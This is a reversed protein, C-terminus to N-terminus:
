RPMVKEPLDTTAGFVFEWGPVFPAGLEFNEFAVGGPIPANTGWFTRRSNVRLVLDDRAKTRWYQTAIKGQYRWWSPTGEVYTAESPNAEDPTAAVIAEVGIRHLQDVSWERHSEFGNPMASDKPWLSAAEVPGDRLWLRRLRAYNGMTATLICEQMPASIKAAFTRFAVESPRDKRLIVQVVPRAGNLFPEVCVYFTLVEHGDVQTPGVAPPEWPVRPEPTEQLETTIWMRRGQVGDSESTEMESYGRRGGVVPEVAVFNLPQRREQGLYPTYIRILGRPGPAPWLGIMIGGKIGWVPEAQAGAAPVIWGDSEVPPVLADPPMQASCLACQSVFACFLLM